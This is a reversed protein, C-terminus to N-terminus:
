KVVARQIAFDFGIKVKGPLKQFRDAISIKCCRLGSTNLLSPTHLLCGALLAPQKKPAFRVRGLDACRAHFSTERRLSFASLM